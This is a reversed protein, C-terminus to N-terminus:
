PSTIGTIIRVDIGGGGSGDGQAYVAGGAPLITLILLFALFVSFVKKM